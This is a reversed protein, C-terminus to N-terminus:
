GYVCTAHPLLYVCDRSAPADSPPYHFFRTEGGQWLNPRRWCYRVRIHKKITAFIAAERFPQRVVEECSVVRVMAAPSIAAVQRTSTIKIPQTADYSDMVFMQRDM